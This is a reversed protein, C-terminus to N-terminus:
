PAKPPTWHAMKILAAFILCGLGISSWPICVETPIISMFEPLYEKLIPAFSSLAMLIAGVTAVNTTTNGVVQGARSTFLSALIALLASMHTDVYKFNSRVHLAAVLFVM